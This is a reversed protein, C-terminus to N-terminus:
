PQECRSESCRNQAAHSNLPTVINYSSDRLSALIFIFCYKLKVKERKVSHFSLSVSINFKAFGQLPGKMCTQKSYTVLSGLVSTGLGGTTVSTPLTLEASLGM